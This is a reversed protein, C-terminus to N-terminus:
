RLAVPEEEDECLRSGNGITVNPQAEAYYDLKNQGRSACVNSRSHKKAKTQFGSSMFEFIM